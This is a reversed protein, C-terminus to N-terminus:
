CVEVKEQAKKQRTDKWGMGWAALFTIAACAVMLYFVKDISNAFALLVADMEATGPQALMRVGAVSGGAQSVAEAPISPVHTALETGLSQNFITTGLVMLVAGAFNQAFIAMAMGVSLHEETLDNQISIIGQM